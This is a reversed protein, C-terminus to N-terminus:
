YRALNGGINGVFACLSPTRTFNKLQRRSGFGVEPRRGKAHSMRPNHFFIRYQFFRNNNKKLYREQDNSRAVPLGQRNSSMYPIPQRWQPYGDFIGFIYRPRLRGGGGPKSTESVTLFTERNLYCHRIQEFANSKYPGLRLPTMLVLIPTSVFIM